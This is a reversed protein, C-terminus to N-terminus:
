RGGGAAAVAAAVGSADADVDPGLGHRVLEVDIEYRREIQTSTDDADDANRAWRHCASQCYWTGSLLNGAGILAVPRRARLIAPYREGRVVGRGRVFWDAERFRAIDQTVLESAHHTVWGTSIESGELVNEAADTAEGEAAERAGSPFSFARLRESIQASRNITGLRPYGPDTQEDRQVERSLEDLRWARMRTAGHSDWSADFEKLSPTDGPFLVLAPQVQAADARARHFHGQTIATQHPDASVADQTLECYIEFGNRRALHRLFEADTCRQVMTGRVEDRAPSTDEIETTFGYKAFIETAIEADSMDSWSQTVTQFHMLCSADLGRVELTSDGARRPGFRPHMETVYGDFINESILDGAGEDPSLVIGITIRSMLQLVPSETGEQFPGRELLSWDPQGDSRDFPGLDFRMVFSSAGDTREEVELEHVREGAGDLESGDIWLRLRPQRQCTDVTM